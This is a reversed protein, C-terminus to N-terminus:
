SFKFKTKVEVLFIGYSLWIMVQFITLFPSFLNVKPNVADPIFFITGLLDKIYLVRYGARIILNIAGLSFSFLSTSEGVVGENSISDVESKNLIESNEIPPASAGPFWNVGQSEMAGMVAGSVAGFVAFVMMLTVVRESLSM